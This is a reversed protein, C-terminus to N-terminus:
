KNDENQDIFPRLDEVVQSNSLNNLFDQNQELTKEFDLVDSNNMSTNQNETDDDGMYVCDRKSATCEEETGSAPNVHLKRTM